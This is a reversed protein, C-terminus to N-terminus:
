SRIINRTVIALGICFAILEINRLVEAVSNFDSLDVTFNLNQNVIPIYWNVTYNPAVPSANLKQLMKYADFPLCFPFVTKLDMTLPKVANEGTPESNPDVVPTKVPPLDPDLVPDIAPDAVDEEDIAVTEKEGTDEREGTIAPDRVGDLVDRLADLYEQVTTTVGALGTLDIGSTLGPNLVPTAGASPSLASNTNDIDDNTGTVGDYTPSTTMEEFTGDLSRIFQLYTGNYVIKDVLLESEDANMPFSFYYYGNLSTANDTRSGSSGGTLNFTGRFASKSLILINRSSSANQYYAWALDSSSSIIDFKFGVNEGRPNVLVDYNVGSSLKQFTYGSIDVGAVEGMNSTDIIENNRQLYNIFQKVQTRAQEGIAISGNELVECGAAFDGWFKDIPKGASDCYERVKSTLYETKTMGVAQSQETLYVNLGGAVMIGLLVPAMYPAVASVLAEGTLGGTAISGGLVTLLGAEAHVETVNSTILFLAFMFYLIRKKM